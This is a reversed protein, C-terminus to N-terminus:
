NREIPVLGIAGSDGDSEGRGLRPSLSRNQLQGTTQVPHDGRGLSRHAHIDFATDPDDAEVLDALRWGRRALNAARWNRGELGTVTSIALNLALASGFWGQAIMLGAALSLLLVLVAEVWLRNFLLWILPAIFALSSFRDAVIVSGEDPIASEPRAFILYTSM